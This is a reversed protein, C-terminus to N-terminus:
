EVRALELEQLVERSTERVRIQREDEADAEVPHLLRERADISLQVDGVARLGDAQEVLDRLLRSRRRAARQAASTTASANHRAPVSPLEPAGAPARPQRPCDQACALVRNFLAEIDRTDGSIGVNIQRLLRQSLVAPASKWKRM